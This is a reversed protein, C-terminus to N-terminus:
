SLEIVSTSFLFWVFCLGNIFQNAANAAVIATGNKGRFAWDAKSSELFLTILVENEISLVRFM